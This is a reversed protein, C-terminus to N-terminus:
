FISVLRDAAIKTCFWEGRPLAQGAKPRSARPPNEVNQEEGDRFPAFYRFGLIRDMVVMKLWFWIGM